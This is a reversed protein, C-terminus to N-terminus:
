LGKLVREVFDLIKKLCDDCVGIHKFADTILVVLKDMM